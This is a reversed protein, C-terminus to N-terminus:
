MRHKTIFVINSLCFPSFFVVFLCSGTYVEFLLYGYSPYSCSKLFPWILCMYIYQWHKNNYPLLLFFYSSPICCSFLWIFLGLPSFPFVPLKHIYVIYVWSLLIINVYKTCKIDTKVMQQRKKQLRRDSAWYQWSHWIKHTREQTNPWFVAGNFFGVSEIAEHQYLRNILGANLKTVDDVLNHGANKLDKRKRM